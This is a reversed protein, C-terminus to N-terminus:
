SLVKVGVYHIRLDAVTGNYHLNISDFNGATENCVMTTSASTLTQGNLSTPDADSTLVSKLDSETFDEGDRAPLGENLNYSKITYNPSGKAIQIMWPTRRNVSATSGLHDSAIFVSPSSSLTGKVVTTAVKTMGGIGYQFKFRHGSTPDATYVWDAPGINQRGFVAGVFNTTSVSGYGSAIGSNAGMCFETSTLDNTLGAPDRDVQVLVGIRIENWSNGIDMTRIWDFNKGQIAKDNGADFTEDVISIAM